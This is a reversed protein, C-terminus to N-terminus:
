KIIVQRRNVTRFSIHVIKKKKYVILQDFDLGLSIIINKLQEPTLGDVTIDAAAGRLHDSSVSGKLDPHSNLEPCRYGSSVNVIKGLFDRLPQLVYKCLSIANNYYKEPMKNNIGYKEAIDSKEFEKLTFNKSFNM